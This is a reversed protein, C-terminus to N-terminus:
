NLIENIRNKAKKFSEISFLSSLELKGGYKVWLIM